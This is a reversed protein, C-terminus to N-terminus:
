KEVDIIISLATLQFYFEWSSLLLPFHFNLKLNRPIKKTNKNEVKKWLKNNINLLYMCWWRVFRRHWPVSKFLNFFLNFKKFTQNWGNLQLQKLQNSKGLKLTNNTIILSHPFYMIQTTLADTISLYNPKCLICTIQQSKSHFM